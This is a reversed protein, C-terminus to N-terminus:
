EGAGPFAALFAAEDQNNLFSIVLWFWSDYRGEYLETALLWPGTTNELAWSLKKPGDNIGYAEEAESVALWSVHGEHDIDIGLPDLAGLVFGTYTGTGQDVVGDGRHLYHGQQSNLDIHRGFRMSSHDSILSDLVQEDTAEWLEGKRLDAVYTEPWDSIQPAAKLKESLRPDDGTSTPSNSM